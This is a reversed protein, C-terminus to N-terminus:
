QRFARYFASRSNFGADFTITLISADTAVLRTKAVAM